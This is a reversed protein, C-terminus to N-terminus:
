RTIVPRGNFFSSLWSWDVTCSKLIAGSVIYGVSFLDKAFSAGSVDYIEDAKYVYRAHFGGRRRMVCRSVGGLLYLNWKRAFIISPQLPSRYSVRRICDDGM